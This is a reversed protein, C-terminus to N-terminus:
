SALSKELAESSVGWHLSAGSATGSNFSWTLRNSSQCRGHTVQEFGPVLITTIGSGHLPNLLRIDAVIEPQSQEKSVKM